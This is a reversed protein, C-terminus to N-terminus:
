TDNRVATKAPSIQKQRQRRLARRGCAAGGELAPAKAKTTKETMGDIVFDAEDLYFKVTCKRSTNKREKYSDKEEARGLNSGYDNLPVPLEV